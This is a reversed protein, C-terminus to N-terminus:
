EYVYSGYANPTAPSVKPSLARMATLTSTAGVVSIDTTSLGSPINAAVQVRSDKTIIIFSNNGSSALPFSPQNSHIDGYYLVGRIDNCIIDCNWFCGSIFWNVVPASLISQPATISKLNDYMTNASNVCGGTANVASTASGGSSVVFANQTKNGGRFYTFGSTFGGSGIVVATSNVKQMDVFCRTLSLSADVASFSMATTTGGTTPLTMVTETIALSTGGVNYAIIGGASVSSALLNMRSVLARCNAGAVVCFGTTTTAFNRTTNLITTKNEYIAYATVGVGPSITTISTSTAAIIPFYNTGSLLFKGPLEAATWAQGTDNVVNASSSTATGTPTGTTLTALGITGVVSLTGSNPGRFSVEVDALCFGDFTGAGVSIIVPAQILYAKLSDIAAQITLFPSTVDGTNLDSGAVDVYLTLPQSITLRTAFSSIVYQVKGDLVALQALTAQLQADPVDLVKSQGATLSFTDCSIANNTLNKISIKM